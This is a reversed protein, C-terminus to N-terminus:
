SNKVRLGTRAKKAPRLVPTGARSTTATSPVDLAGSPFHSTTPSVQDDIEDHSRKRGSRTSRAVNGDVNLAPTAVSSRSTRTSSGAGDLGGAGDHGPLLDNVVKQQPHTEYRIFSQSLSVGETVNKAKIRLRVKEDDPPAGFKSPFITKDKDEKAKQQRTAASSKQSVNKTKPLTSLSGFLPSDVAAPMSFAAGAATSSNQPQPTTTSSSKATITIKQSKNNPNPPSSPTPTSSSSSHSVDKTKKAANPLKRRTIPQPVSSANANRGKRAAPAPAAPSARSAAVEDFVSEDDDHISNENGIEDDGPPTMSRASSLSSSSSCTSSARTQRRMSPSDTLKAKGNSKPTAVASSKRGKSPTTMKTSKVSGPLTTRQKKKPPTAVTEEIAPARAQVPPAPSPSPAVAEEQEKDQKRPQQEQATTDKPAPNELHWQLERYQPQIPAHSLKFRPLKILNGYPAPKAKRPTPRSSTTPPVFYYCASNDKKGEKKKQHLLRSFRDVTDNDATQTFIDEFMSLFESNGSNEDYLTRLAWATPYRCHKLAEDVAHEVVRDTAEKRKEFNGSVSSASTQQISPSSQAISGPRGPTARSVSRRTNASKATGALSAAKTPRFEEDADHTTTSRRRPPPAVPTPEEDQDDGSDSEDNESEEQEETDDETQAVPTVPVPAPKLPTSQEPRKKLVIRRIPTPAKAATEPTPPLPAAKKFVGVKPLTGLPAMNEVVGHRMLGAEQYSPKQQVQPELWGNLSAQRKDGNQSASQAQEPASGNPTSNVAPSSFRSRTARTSPPMTTGPMKTNEGGKHQTAGAKDPHM